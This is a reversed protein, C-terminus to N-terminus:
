ILGTKPNVNNPFPSFPNATQDANSKADVKNDKKPVRDMIGKLLNKFFLYILVCFVKNLSANVM